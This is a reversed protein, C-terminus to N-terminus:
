RSPLLDVKNKHKQTVFTIARCTETEGEKNKREVNKVKFRGLGAIGVIGSDTEEIEKRILAFAIRLLNAAMKEQYKNELLYPDADKVKNILEIIKM